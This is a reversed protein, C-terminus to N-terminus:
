FSFQMKEFYETLHFFFFFTAGVAYASMLYKTFSYFISLGNISCFEEGFPIYM